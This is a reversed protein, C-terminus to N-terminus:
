PVLGVHSAFTVPTEALDAALLQRDMSVLSAGLAGAAAAFLADYFTLRHKHALAAADRRWQPPPALPPGCIVMLDDIQDATDDASWHLARILVNGLEYVGLDLVHATLIEDRHAALIARSEAVEAEDETHFWKVVVSTDVVAIM